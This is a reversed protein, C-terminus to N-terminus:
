NTPEQQKRKLAERAPIAFRHLKFEGARRDDLFHQLTRQVTPFAIEDWPIDEEAYLGTHTSEPGPEHKDSVMEVRYFMHVQGIHPVDIITILEGPHVRARAEEWTERAAGEEITEGKEMFGAPLTWFGARPEIARKALLIRDGWTAVCGTVIRPNVYDIYGCSDCIDRELNDGDPIRRSM